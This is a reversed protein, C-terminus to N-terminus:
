TSITLVATDSVISDGDETYVICRVQARDWESSATFALTTGSGDAFDSWDTDGNQCYQWKYLLDSGSAAITFEAQGGETVNLNQPQTTITISSTGVIGMLRNWTYASSTGRVESAVTNLYSQTKVVEDQLENIDESEVTDGTCEYSIYATGATTSFEIQRKFPRESPATLSYNIKSGTYGTGTWVQVTDDNVNDHQLYGSYKGSSPMTIKEEISYTNGSIKDLRKVFNKVEM